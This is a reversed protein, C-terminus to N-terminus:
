EGIKYEADENFYADRDARSMEALAFQSQLEVGSLDAGTIPDFNSREAEEASLETGDPTIFIDKSPSEVDPTVSDSPTVVIQDPHYGADRITKNM